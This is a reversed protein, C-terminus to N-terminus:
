SRPENSVPARPGVIVPEHSVPFNVSRAIFCKEHAVKHLREALGADSGAGITVRPRLVVREFQGEGGDEEVMVGEAWAPM